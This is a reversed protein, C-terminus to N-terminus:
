ESFKRLDEPRVEPVLDAAFAVVGEVVPESQDSSVSWGGCVLHESVNDYPINQSQKVASPQPTPSKDRPTPQPERSSSNFMQHVANAAEEGIDYVKPDNKFIIASGNIMRVEDLNMATKGHNFVTLNM